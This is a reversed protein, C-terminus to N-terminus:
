LAFYIPIWLISIVASILVCPLNFKMMEKMSYGGLNYAMLSSPSALPTCFSVLTSARVAAVVPLMSVNNQLCRYM